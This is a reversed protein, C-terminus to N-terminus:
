IRIPPTAWPCTRPALLSCPPSLACSCSSQAKAPRPSGWMSAALVRAAPETIAFFSNRRDPGPPPFIAARPRDFLARIQTDARRVTATSAVIKPRVIRDGQRRSALRDLAVEYLAAVTGLPGSVLHLEDQIIVSPPLLRVGDFLRRGVGPEAAGYFGHGDERDVHDFFAGVKDIFPLGAFKDVTLLGGYLRDPKDRALRVIRAENAAHLGRLLQPLAGLRARSSRPSRPRPTGARSRCAPSAASRPTTTCASPTSRLSSAAWCRSGRWRRWRACRSPSGARTEGKPAYVLRLQDDTILVGACGRQTERLLRELRQHPSAEWGSLAGRRDPEVGPAEIRVLLTFRGEPDIVARDPQLETDAEDVLVSLGDPLPRGALPGNALGAVQHERWGLVRAFFAWPDALAPVAGKSEDEPALCAAVTDGDARTQEEPVWGMATSFPRASCWASRSSMAWGNLIPISSPWTLESEREGSTAAQPSLALTLPLRLPFGMRPSGSIM